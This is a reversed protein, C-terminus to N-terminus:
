MLWNLEKQKAAQNRQLTIYCGIVQIVERLENLQIRENLAITWIFTGETSANWKQLNYKRRKQKKLIDKRDVQQKQEILEVGKHEAKNGQDWEKQIGIM